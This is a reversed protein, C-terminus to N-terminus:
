ATVVPKEVPPQTLPDLALMPEWYQGVSFMHRVQAYQVLLRTALAVTHPRKGAASWVRSWMRKEHEGLRRVDLAVQMCQKDVPRMASLDAEMRSGPPLARAYTEILNVMRDGFAAPSYMSNTLRQLGANLEANTMQKPAINSAWPVGQVTAGDLLRGEDVMRQKLPTMDPAILGGLSFMPVPISQAFDFQKQFIDPGDADFGVIMGGMVSMGYDVIKQVEKVLDVKVNQRKKTERLSEINATEIGVFVQTLGAEACMRLLEEDRTADISIQTVFNMRKDRRWWTIAELLEKARSRYATLNDDALFVHHYGLAHLQDLEALVSAIPKHRQKRGLYQIVDCFDCEFPCGRSTQLAGLLARDNRYLDWRPKPSFTLDPRGGVYLDKPKGARLDSFLEAAIEELEGTVLVDCHDRMDYTSLTAYPGGIIVRKGRRRFEAAIAKVRNRQSLKGTIAIWDAPHNFDIPDISEDVISVHFDAPVMAAVTVSTLDAMMIGPLGGSAGLVEAGFYTPFDAAPNVILISAPM